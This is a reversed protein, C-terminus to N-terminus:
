RKGERVRRPRAAHIVIKHENKVSQNEPLVSVGKSKGPVDM